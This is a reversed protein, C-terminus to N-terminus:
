SKMCLSKGHENVHFMAPLLNFTHTPQPFPMQISPQISPATIVHGELDFTTELDKTGISSNSPSKNLRGANLNNNITPNINYAQFSDTNVNTNYNSVDNNQRFQPTPVNKAQFNNKINMNINENPSRFEANGNFLPNILRFLHSNGIQVVSGHRLPVPQICQQGDVLVAGM